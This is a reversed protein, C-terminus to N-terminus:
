FDCKGRKKSLRVNLMGMLGNKWPITRLMSLKLPEFLTRPLLPTFSEDVPLAKHDTSIFMLGECSSKSKLCKIHLLRLCQSSKHTARRSAFTPSM